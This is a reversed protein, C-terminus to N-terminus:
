RERAEVPHRCMTPSRARRHVWPVPRSRRLWQVRRSFRRLALPVTLKRISGNLEPASRIRPAARDSRSEAFRVTIVVASDFMRGASYFVRSENAHGSVNQPSFESAFIDGWDCVCVFFSSFNDKRRICDRSLETGRIEDTAKGLVLSDLM